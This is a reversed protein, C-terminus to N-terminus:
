SPCTSLICPLIWFWVISVLWRQFSELIFYTFEQHHYFPLASTQLIRSRSIMKDMRRSHKILRYCVRLLADSTRQDTMKGTVAQIDGKRNWLLGTLTQSPGKCMIWGEEEKYGDRADNWDHPGDSTQRYDLPITARCRHTFKWNSQNAERTTNARTCVRPTPGM